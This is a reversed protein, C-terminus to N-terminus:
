AKRQSSFPKEMDYSRLENRFFSIDDPSKVGYNTLVHNYLTWISINEHGTDFDETESSIDTGSFKLIAAKLANSHALATDAIRTKSGNITVQTQSANAALDAPRQPLRPTPPM